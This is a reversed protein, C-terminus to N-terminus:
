KLVRGAVGKGAGTMFAYVGVGIVAIIAVKTFGSSVANGLATGVSGLPSDTTGVPQVNAPDAVDKPLTGDSIMGPIQLMMQEAVAKSWGLSELAPDWITYYEASDTYAHGIRQAVSMYDKLFQEYPNAGTLSDFFGIAKDTFSLNPEVRQKLVVAAASIDASLNNDAQSDFPWMGLQKVQAHM